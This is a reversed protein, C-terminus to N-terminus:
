QMIADTIKYFNCSFSLELVFVVKCALGGKKNKTKQKKNKTKSSLDIRGHQKM